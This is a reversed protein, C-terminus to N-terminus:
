EVNLIYIKNARTLEELRKTHMDIQRQNAATTLPNSKPPLIVVKVWTNPTQFESKELICFKSKKDQEFALCELKIM